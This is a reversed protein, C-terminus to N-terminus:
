TNCVEASPWGSEIWRASILSDSILLRSPASQTSRAKSSPIEVESTFRMLVSYGFLMFWCAITISLSQSWVDPLLAVPLYTMMIISKFNEHNQSNLSLGCADELDFLLDFLFDTSASAPPFRLESKQWYRNTEDRCWEETSHLQLHCTERFHLARESSCPKVNWFFTNRTTM